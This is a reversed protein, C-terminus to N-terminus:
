RGGRKAIEARLREAEDWQRPRVKVSRKDAAELHIPCLVITERERDEGPTDCALLQDDADCRRFGETELSGGPRHVGLDSVDIPTRHECRFGAARKVRYNDARIQRSETM